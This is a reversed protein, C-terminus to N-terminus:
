KAVAAATPASTETAQKALSYAEQALSRLSANEKKAMADNAAQLKQLASQIAQGKTVLSPKWNVTIQLANFREFANVKPDEYIFHLIDHIAQTQDAKLSNTFNDAEINDNDQKVMDAIQAIPEKVEQALAQLEKASQHNIIARGLDTVATEIVGAHSTLLQAEAKDGADKILTGINTTASKADDAIWTASGGTTIALIQQGYNQLQRMAILRLAKAKSFDDHKKLEEAFAQFTSSHAVYTEAAQLRYAADSATQIEDFYDSEAQALANAAAVFDQSPSTLSSLSECGALGLAAYLLTAAILASSHRAQRRSLRADRFPGPCEMARFYSVSLLNARGLQRSLISSVTVAM